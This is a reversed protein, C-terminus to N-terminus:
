RLIDSQCSIEYITHIGSKKLFQIPDKNSSLLLKLTTSSKPAFEFDHKRFVPTLNKTVLPYYPMGIRRVSNTDKPDDFFTSMEFRHKKAIRKQLMNDIETKYYGNIRAM